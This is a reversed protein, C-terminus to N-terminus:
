ELGATLAYVFHLLLRTYREMSGSIDALIVLPRPKFRPERRSWVLVEGGHRINRRLTRRMDFRPGRGPRHRRTRREGLRWFLEAMIGKIAELEKGTLDAFDRHRLLERASYTRTVQVVPPAEESAEGGPRDKRISPLRLPPATVLPRKGVRRRGLGELSLEKWAGAPKRWFIEFARDFLAIDEKRHVLLSRAAHYFESRRGIEIYQLALTLDMMRGPNVDLGLGRLLRGFLILNHLLNGSSGASSSARSM